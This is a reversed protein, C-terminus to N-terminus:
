LLVHACGRRHPPPTQKELSSRECGCKRGRSSVPKPSQANPAPARAQPQGATTRAGPEAVGIPRSCSGERRGATACPRVAASPRPAAPPATPIKASRSAAPTKRPSSRRRTTPATAPWAPRPPRMRSARCGPRRATGNPRQPLLSRRSARRRAPQRRARRDPHRARLRTPQQCLSESLYEHRPIAGHARGPAARRRHDCLESAAPHAKRHADGQAHPRPQGAGGPNARCPHRPANAAHAPKEGALGADHRTGGPRLGSGLIRVRPDVPRPEGASASRRRVFRCRRHARSSARLFGRRRRVPARGDPRHARRHKRPQAPLSPPHAPDSRRPPCSEAHYYGKTPLPLGKPQHACGHHPLSTRAGRTTGCHAQAGPLPRPRNLQFSRKGPRFFMESGTERPHGM